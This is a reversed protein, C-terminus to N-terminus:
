RGGGPARGICRKWRRASAPTARVASASPAQLSSGVIGAALGGRLSAFLVVVLFAFGATGPNPHLEHGIATVAATGGLAILWPTLDSRSRM